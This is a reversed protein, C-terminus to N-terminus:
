IESKQKKLTDIISHNVDFTLGIKFIIKINKEVFFIPMSRLYISWASFLTLEDFHRTKASGKGYVTVLSSM